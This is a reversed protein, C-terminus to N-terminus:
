RPVVCLVVFLGSEAELARCTVTCQVDAGKGVDMDALFLMKGVGDIIIGHAALQPRWSDALVKAMSVHRPCRFKAQDMSDQTWSLLARERNPIKPVGGCVQVSDAGLQQALADCNRDLMVSKVHGSHAEQVQKEQTSTTVQKRLMKLRECTSCKGHHQSDAIRLKDQWTSKMYIRRFSSLHVPDESWNVYMEYFEQFTQHPLFRRSEVALAADAGLLPEPVGDMQGQSEDSAVVHDCLGLPLPRPQLDQNETPFASGEETPIHKAWNAWAHYCFKNVDQQGATLSVSRPHCQMGKKRGDAPPGDCHVAEQLAHLTGSGVLHAKQWIKRCVPSENILYTGKPIQKVVRLERLSLWVRRRRVEPECALLGERLVKCGTEIDSNPPVCPGDKCHCHWSVVHDQEGLGESALSPLSGDSGVDSETPLDDGMAVSQNEGM